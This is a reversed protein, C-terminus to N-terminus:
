SMLVPAYTFEQYLNKEGQVYETELTKTTKNQKTKQRSKGINLTILVSVDFKFANQFSKKFNNECSYLQCEKM